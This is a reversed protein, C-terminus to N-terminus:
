VPWGFQACLQQGCLEGVYALISGFYLIGTASQTARLRVCDRVMAAFVAVAVLGAGVRLALFVWTLLSREATATFSGWAASGLWWAAFVSVGFFAARLSVAWLLLRSFHRLPDLTMKTATLYAHGLLWALTISGLFLAALVQGTIRLVIPGPPLSLPITPDSSLRFGAVVGAVGGVACLGHFLAPVRGFVPALGSVLVGALALVVGLAHAPMDVTAGRFGWVLPVAVVAVVLLGVLRVFRWALPQPRATALVLM